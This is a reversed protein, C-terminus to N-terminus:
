FFVLGVMFRNQGNEKVTNSVNAYDSKWKGNTFAFEYGVNLRISVKEKSRFNVALSPGAYFIDNKLSVHGSNNEPNLDDLNIDNSKSFLNLENYSYAINLGGSFYFKKLKAFNYHGRLRFSGSALQNETTNNDTNSYSFSLEADFWYKESSTTLGVLLEPMSEKIEPMGSAKIKSNIEFDNYFVGGLGLYVNFTPLQEQNGIPTIPEEQGLGFQAFFLTAIFLINKM